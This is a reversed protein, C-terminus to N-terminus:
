YPQETKELLISVVHEFKFAYWLLQEDEIHIVIDDNLIIWKNNKRTVTLYHCPLVQLAYPGRFTEQQYFCINRMFYKLDNEMQQAVAALDLRQKVTTIYEILTLFMNTECEIIEDSNINIDRYWHRRSIVDFKIGNEEVDLSLFTFGTVKYFLNRNRYMFSHELNAQNFNLPLKEGRFDYFITLDPCVFRDVHTSNDKLKELCEFFIKYTFPHLERSPFSTSSLAIHKPVLNNYEMYNKLRQNVPHNIMYLFNRGLRKYKLISENDDVWILSLFNIENFYTAGQYKNFRFEIETLQKPYFLDRLIPRWAVYPYGVIKKQQIEDYCSELRNGPPIPKDRHNLCITRLYSKLLFYEGAFGFISLQNIKGESTPIFKNRLLDGATILPLLPQIDELYPDRKVNVMFNSIFLPDKTQINRVEAMLLDSSVILAFIANTLCVGCRDPNNYGQLVVDEPNVY